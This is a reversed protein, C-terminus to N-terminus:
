SDSKRNHIELATVTRALLERLEHKDEDKSALLKEVMQANAGRQAELQSILWKVIWTWSAISVGALTLFWYAINKGALLEVESGYPMVSSIDALIPIAMVASAIAVGPLLCVVMVALVIQWFRAKHKAQHKM